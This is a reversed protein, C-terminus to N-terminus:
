LPRRSKKTSPLVYTPYPGTGALRQMCNGRIGQTDGPRCEAGVEFVPVHLGEVSVYRPRRYSENSYPRQLGGQLVFLQHGSSGQVTPFHVESPQLLILSAFMVSSPLKTHHLAYAIFYPLKVTSSSSSPPLESCSFPPHCVQHLVMFNARTQLISRAPM